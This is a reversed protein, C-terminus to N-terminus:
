RAPSLRAVQAVLQEAVLPGHHLWVVEGGPGLLVTTPAVPLKEGFSSGPGLLDPAPRALIWDIGESARLEMLLRGDGPDLGVDVITVADGHAKHVRRLEDLDTLTDLQWTVFFHVVVPKGRLSELSLEGGDVPLVRGTVADGVRVFPPTSPRAPGGCALAFTALTGLTALTALARARWLGRPSV